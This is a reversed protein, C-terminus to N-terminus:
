GVAVPRRAPPDPEESALLAGARELAKPRAAALWLAGAAFLAIWLVIVWPFWTYPTTTQEIIQGALLAVM